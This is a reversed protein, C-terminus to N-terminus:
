ITAAAGPAISGSSAEWSPAAVDKERDSWWCWIVAAAGEALRETEEVLVSPAAVEKERDSWECAMSEDEAGPAAAEALVLPSKKGDDDDIGGTLMM